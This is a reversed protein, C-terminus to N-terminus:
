SSWLPNIHKEPLLFTRELCSSHLILLRYVMPGFVTGNMYHISLLHQFFLRLSSMVFIGLGSLFLYSKVLLIMLVIESSSGSLQISIM